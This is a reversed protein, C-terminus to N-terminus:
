PESSHPGDIAAAREFEAKAKVAMGERRYVQGLLFHYSGTQPSLAVAEEFERQADTLGGQQQYLHGLQEHIKPDRPSISSAQKLLPLAEGTLGRHILVIALNLMPQESPHESGQQWALALRYEQVADASRNLGEYALGLNNASKVNRPQLALAKQFCEVAAQFHQLSYRIRGLGYWTAPDRDNMQLSRSMWKDADVFDDLLAYDDAVNRLDEASPTQLQAARTYQALSEKPQNVRMLTYALLTHAEASREDTGIYARLESEATRFDDSAILKRAGELTVTSTVVPHPRPGEPLSQAICGAGWAAGLWLTLVVSRCSWSSSSDFRVRDTAVPAAMAGAPQFVKLLEAVRKRM